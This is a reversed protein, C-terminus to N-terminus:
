GKLQKLRRSIEAKIEEDNDEKLAETLLSEAASRSKEQFIRFFPSKPSLKSAYQPLMCVFNQPYRNSRDTDVVAM